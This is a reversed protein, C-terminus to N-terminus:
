GASAIVRHVLKRPEPLSPGIAYSGQLITKAHALRAEDNYYITCLPEGPKVADSVKKHLLIGVAPDVADEKKERGGGLVVCATGVAECEISTVFGGKASRIEMTRKARPLLTPNDVLEPDGGHLVVMERFKKLAAGSEILQDYLEKAENV